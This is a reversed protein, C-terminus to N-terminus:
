FCMLFESEYISAPHSGPEDIPITSNRAEYYDKWYQSTEGTNDEFRMSIDPFIAEQSAINFVYQIIQSCYFSKKGSSNIFNPAFLDNYESGILDIAINVAKKIKDTSLDARLIEINSFFGHTKCINKYEKVAVGQEPTADILEILNTEVKTVMAVHYFAKNKSSEVIASIFGSNFLHKSEFFVLDGTELRSNPYNYCNYIM